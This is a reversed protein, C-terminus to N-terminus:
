WLSIRGLAFVTTAPLTFAHKFTSVARWCSYLMLFIHHLPFLLFRRWDWNELQTTDALWRFGPGMELLDVLIQTHCETNSVVKESTLALWLNWCDQLLCNSSRLIIRIHTITAFLSSLGPLSIKAATKFSFTSTVVFRCGCPLTNSRGAYILSYM